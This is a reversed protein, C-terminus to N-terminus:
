ATDRNSDQWAKEQANIIRATLMNALKRDQDAISQLCGTPDSPTTAQIKLSCDLLSQVYEDAKGFSQRQIAEITLRIIEARHPHDHKPQQLQLETSTSNPPFTKSTPPTYSPPTATASSLPM